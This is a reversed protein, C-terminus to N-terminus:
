RRMLWVKSGYQSERLELAKAVVDPPFSSQLWTAAFLEELGKQIAVAFASVPARDNAEVLWGASLDPLRHKSELDALGPLEPANCSRALLMSGHQLLANGHRRQASGLIKEGACILDGVSRRQFCLFPDPSRTRDAKDQNPERDAISTPKYPKVGWGFGGLWDAIQQHIARYLEQNGGRQQASWPLCLSYTWDHHHIIAGGGSSRRICDIPTSGSHELRSQYPQFYGLSLTPEAWAYVRLFGVQHEDSYELLAQDLAMNYAGSDVQNPLLYIDM